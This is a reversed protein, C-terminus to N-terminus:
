AEDVAGLLKDIRAGWSNSDIFSQLRTRDPKSSLARAISAIFDQDSDALYVNPIGQLEKMTTAVVPKGMALYEFVKIPSTAQILQM